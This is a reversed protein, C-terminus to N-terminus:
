SRVLRRRVAGGIALVGTGLLALSSPEPTAAATPTVTISGSSFDMKGNPYPGYTGFFMNSSSVDFTPNSTASAFYFYLEFTNSDTTNYGTDVLNAYGGCCSGYVGYPYGGTNLQQVVTLTDTQTAAAPPNGVATINVDTMTFTNGSYNFSFTGSM